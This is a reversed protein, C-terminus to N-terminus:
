DVKHINHIYLMYESSVHLASDDVAEGAPPAKPRKFELAGVVTSAAARGDAM